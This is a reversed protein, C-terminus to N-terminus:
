QLDWLQPSLGPSKLFQGLNYASGHVHWRTELLCEGWGLEHEQKIQAHLWLSGAWVALSLSRPLVSPEELGVWVCPSTPSCPLSWHWSQCLNM